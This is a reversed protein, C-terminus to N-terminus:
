SAPSDLFPDLVSVGCRQVDKVNRTVLTLRHYLATAALLGDIDPLKQDAGFRGWLECIELTVPLIRDAFQMELKKLWRDLANASPADRRRLREIGRRLEGVVLFSIFLETEERPDFWTRLSAQARAGKRLESVINTDLLFPM